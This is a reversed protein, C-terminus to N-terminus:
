VKDADEFFLPLPLLSQLFASKQIETFTGAAHPSFLFHLVDLNTFSFEPSYDPTETISPIGQEVALRFSVGGKLRFFFSGDALRREAARLKLFPDIFRVYDFVAFHYSPNQAWTQCFGSLISIKEAEHSSAYIHVTIKQDQGQISRLLLSSIEPLRSIDSLNIETVLYEGTNKGAKGVLYGFFSNGDMVAFVEANWTSLIDFFKERKRKLRLTKEEHMLYIQELLSLDQPGVSKLSFGTSQHPGSAHRVNAENFTFVYASGALAYGFNEYRQRNGSLCSFIMGDRKMDDMAKQILETMYGKGRSYPHVSVMGIGRGHISMGPFEWEIPYAGVAAKIKTDERILYHIGDMFYERKYLKPLMAPFDHPKQDHSFVYNAFDIVDDYDQPRAIELYYEM